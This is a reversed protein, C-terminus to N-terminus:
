ASTETAQQQLGAFPSDKSVERATKVLRVYLANAKDVDVAEAVDMFEWFSEASNGYPAKSTYRLVMAVQMDGLKLDDRMKPEGNKDFTMYSGMDNLLQNMKRPGPKRMEITGELGYEALDITMVKKVDEM